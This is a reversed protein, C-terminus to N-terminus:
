RTRPCIDGTWRAASYGACRPLDRNVTAPTRGKKLRDSRWKEIQWASLESLNLPGLSPAFLTKLRAITEDGTRQHANLWPSYVQDLYDTFTLQRAARKAVRPDSGSAYDGLRKQAEARALAPSPILDTDGLTYWRGRGLAIRYSHTGTPRVRLVLRRVKTDYIDLVATPPAQQLRRLLETTITERM